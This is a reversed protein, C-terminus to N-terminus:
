PYGTLVVPEEAPVNKADSVLKRVFAAAPPAGTGGGGGGGGGGTPTGGGGPRANVESEKKAMISECTQSSKSTGRARMAGPRSRLPASRPVDDHQCQSPARVAVSGREPASKRRM